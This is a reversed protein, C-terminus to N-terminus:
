HLSRPKSYILDVGELHNWTNKIQQHIQTFCYEALNEPTVKTHKFHDVEKNLHKKNLSEVCPKVLKDLDLLNVVLGSKQNVPGALCVEIEWSSGTGWESYPSDEGASFFYKRSIEIKKM